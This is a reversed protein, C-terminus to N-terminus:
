GVPPPTLRLEDSSTSEVTLAFPLAVLAFVAFMPAATAILRTLIVFVATTPVSTRMWECPSASVAAMRLRAAAVALVREVGLRSRAGAAALDADGARERERDGVDRGTCITMDFAPRPGGPSWSLPWSRVSDAVELTALVALAIALSLSAPVTPTPAPTAMLMTLSM